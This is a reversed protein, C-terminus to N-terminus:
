ADSEDVVYCYRLICYCSIYLRKVNCLIFDLVSGAAGVLICESVFVASVCIYRVSVFVSM